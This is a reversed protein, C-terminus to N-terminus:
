AATAETNRITKAAAIFRQLNKRKKTQHKYTAFFLNKREPQETKLQEKTAILCM